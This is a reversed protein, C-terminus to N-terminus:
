SICKIIFAKNLGLIGDFLHTICFEFNLHTVLVWLAWVYLVWIKLAIMELFVQIERVRVHFPINSLSFFIIIMRNWLPFIWFYFMSIKPGSSGQLATGIKHWNLKLKDSTKARKGVLFVLFTGQKHVWWHDWPHHYTSIFCMRVTTVHM